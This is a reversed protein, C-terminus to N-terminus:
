NGAAGDRRQRYEYTVAPANVETIAREMNDKFCASQLVQRRYDRGSFVSAGCAELSAAELRKELVAADHPRSLNLRGYSVKVRSAGDPATAAMALAPGALALAAAIIVTRRM